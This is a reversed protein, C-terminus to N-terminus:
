GLMNHLLHGTWKPIVPVIFTFILIVMLILQPVIFVAFFKAWAKIKVIAAIFLTLLILTIWAILISPIFIESIHLLAGEESKTILEEAITTMNLM